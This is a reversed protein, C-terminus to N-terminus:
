LSDTPFLQVPGWNPLLVVVLGTGQTTTYPLSMCPQQDGPKKRVAAHSRQFRHRPLRRLDSSLSTQESQGPQSELSRQRLAKCFRMVPSYRGCPHNAAVTVVFARYM